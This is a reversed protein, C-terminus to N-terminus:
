KKQPMNFALIMYGILVIFVFITPLGNELTLAATGLDSISLRSRLDYLIKVVIWLALTLAVAQILPAFVQFKEYKHSFYSTYNSLLSIGFLPLLYLLLVAAIVATETVQSGSVRLAEIVFRIVILFVFSSILPGLIGFTRDYWNETRKTFRNTRQEVQRGMDKTNEQIQQATKAMTKGTKKGLREMNQAFEKAHTEITSRFREGQLSTGCKKCFMADPDNKTQCKSCVVM